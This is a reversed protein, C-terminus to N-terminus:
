DYDSNKQLARLGLGIATAFSLLKNKPIVTKEKMTIFQGPDGIRIPVGLKESLVTDIQLFNAGGGILVVETVARAHPFTSQYYSMAKKIEQALEAMSQMLIKLLAGECKNPDLGCVIKSEEAKQPDINLTTAITNTIKEGSIPLSVTFQITNHDFLMLGTRVAGFDIIIKATDVASTEGKKTDGFISRIIAAAEVELILPTFGAQEIVTLYSDSTTKPVAGVLLQTSTRTHAVIQWDLYIDNVDIPIHKVIENQVLERLEEHKLARREQTVATIVKVFTKTEPLVSIINKSTIKKGKASTIVTRILKTLQPANIIEGNKIIGAPVALENYSTLINKKGNRKLQVLRLSQDGIDLAFMDHPQALM